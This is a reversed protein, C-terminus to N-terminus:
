NAHKRSKISLIIGIATMSMILHSGGYSMFSLPIGTVPMLGIVIGINIAMHYFLLAVIGSALLSGFRDKSEYSIQLGRLPISFLFFLLLVSGLFGTQEAWSAFIFDTSSEPVHPIRGETMEANMLGKGFFRGSGVAPKSARLQYGAGQKFEEPNLFATLRVVQNERFPVIKMVVVASILSIGLIGLPIYYQRLTRSGRAIRIGVMVLCAILFIVGFTLLLTKNSFIKFLFGGEIEVVQDVAERLSNLTKSPLNVGEVRKGDLLLWIKGGLRNVVSLLDTKGTRQLFDAIDNILTLRSYEVYMPLMLTIGGFALLSGIHLIDAGGFFLMTFLIPLFSVATGFDPQLLIFVMPVIVILFPISLVVLNKMDKEKLVMFQGLLIVSALKAFESAQIRIPGIKIWSRAGRDAPLYGIGPILTIILLFITFVYIVLAYAGLLQYNLRSMFYMVVLGVAFYFLQRYWKGPGDEFNVEQSYLTMVSCLVVIVVSIVLFYDIKEISKDPKM